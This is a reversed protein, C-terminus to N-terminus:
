VKRGFALCRRLGHGGADLALEVIQPHRARLEDHVELALFIRGARRDVALAVREAGGADVADLEQHRGIGALGGLRQRLHGRATFSRAQHEGQFAHQGGGVLHRREHEVLDIDADAAADTRHHAALQPRQRPGRGGFARAARRGFPVLHDANGMQRLDGGEAVGM